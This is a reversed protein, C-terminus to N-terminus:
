GRKKQYVVVGTGLVVLAMASYLMWASSVGQTSPSTGAAGGEVIDAYIALPSLDKINFTITKNKYDVNKDEVKITEWLVRDASYHVITINKWATTMADVKLTVTHYGKKHCESHDNKEDLDFFKQVLKKEKIEKDVEATISVTKGANIDAIKQTAEKASKKAEEKKEAPIATNKDISADSLEEYTSIGNTADVKVDYKGVSSGSPEMPTTKSTASVSMASALVMVTMMLGALVRKKM